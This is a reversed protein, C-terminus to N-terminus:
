GMRRSNRYKKLLSFYFGPRKVIEQDTANTLWNFVEDNSYNKILEDSQIISNQSPNLRNIKRMVEGLMYGEEFSNSIEKQRKVV